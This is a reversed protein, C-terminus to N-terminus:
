HKHEYILEVREKLARFFIGSEMTTLCIPDICNTLFLNEIIKRRYIIDIGQFIDSIILIDIDHIDRRKVLISGRYYVQYIPLQSNKICFILFKTIKDKSKAGIEM